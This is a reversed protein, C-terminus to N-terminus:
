GSSDFEELWLELIILSYVLYGWNRDSMIKGALLEDIYKDDIYQRTRASQQGLTDMLLEHFDNQLWSVLPIEFGRKAGTSVASPIRDRYADRLIAKTTTNRILYNAPLSMAFEGLIHDMFPSRGELSAAMTAIDAKVLLASLLNIQVDRSLQIGLATNAYTEISEIWKETATVPNGLWIAQKDQERLTDGTRVLYQEGGTYSLTRAFRSVFGVKSRREKSLRGTSNAIAKFAFNPIWNLKNSLEAAAHRRYGGFLEDGGDGNLVVTVHQRALRSIALSPIASPDSFPQDYQKVLYTLEQIPNIKMRLVTNQINYQKATAQAISSEDFAEDDVGITFTQLNGNTHQAAEYTVVTSDVGGSLLIGLPVDSRLRIRVAESLKERLMEQADEYGLNTKNTYDVHWYPEIVLQHGNYLMWAGPPLMMVNEYITYPQPIAGLSLYDYISQQRTILSIGIQSALIRLSKLESAFLLDGDPTHMYFLPKQGYRDRVVFLQNQSVDIIAFAYMGRLFDCMNKGYEEYLHILVETDSNTRFVHGKAKLDPILEVYNYIEGNFVIGITKDENFIPQHGGAIDIISLRRMGIFSNEHQFLGYDDPGRHKISELSQIVCDTSIPKRTWGGNIGCM